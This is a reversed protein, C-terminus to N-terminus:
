TPDLLRATSDCVVAREPRNYDRISQLTTHGTKDM